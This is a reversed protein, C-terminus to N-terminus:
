FLYQPATATRSSDGSLKQPLPQSHINPSWLGDM